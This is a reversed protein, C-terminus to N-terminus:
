YSIASLALDSSSYMIIPASEYIIESRWFLMIFCESEYSPAMGLMRFSLVITRVLTDKGSYDGISGGICLDVFLFILYDM